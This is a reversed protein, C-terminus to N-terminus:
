EEEYFDYIKITGKEIAKSFFTMVRNFGKIDKANIALEVSFVRM